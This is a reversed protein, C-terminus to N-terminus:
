RSGTSAGSESTVQRSLSTTSKSRESGDDFRVRTFPGAYDFLNSVDDDDDFLDLLDAQHPSLRDAFGRNRVKAKTIPRPIPVYGQGERELMADAREDEIIRSWL